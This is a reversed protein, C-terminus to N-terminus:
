LISKIASIIPNKEPTSLTYNLQYNELLQNFYVIIFMRIGCTLSITDNKNQNIMDIINNRKVNETKSIEDLANWEAQALRVSTKRKSITIVKSILDVM